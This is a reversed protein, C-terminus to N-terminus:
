DEQYLSKSYAIDKIYLALSEQLNTDVLFALLYSEKEFLEEQIEHNHIAQWAYGLDEPTYDMLIDRYEEYNPLDKM